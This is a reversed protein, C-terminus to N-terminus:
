DRLNKKIQKLEKHPNGELEIILGVCCGGKPRM